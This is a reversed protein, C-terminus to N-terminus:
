LIIVSILFFIGKIISDDESLDDLILSDLLFESSTFLTNDDNGEVCFEEDDVSSEEDVFYSEDISFVNDSISDELVILEFLKSIRKKTNM